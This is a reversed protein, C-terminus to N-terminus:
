ESPTQWTYGGEVIGTPWYPNGKYLKYGQTDKKLIKFLRETKKKPKKVIENDYIFYEIGNDLLFKYDQQSIKITNSKEERCLSIIEKDKLEIYFNDDPQRPKFNKLAKFLENM